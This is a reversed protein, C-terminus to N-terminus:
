PNTGTSEVLYTLDRSSEGSGFQVYEKVIDESLNYVECVEKSEEPTRMPWM